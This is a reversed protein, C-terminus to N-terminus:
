ISSRFSNGAIRQGIRIFAEREERKMHKKEESPLNKYREWRAEDSEDAPLNDVKSTGLPKPITAQPKEPHFFSANDKKWAKLFTELDSDSDLVEEKEADRYAMEAVRPDIAGLKTVRESVKGSYTLFRIEADKDAVLKKYDVEAQKGAKLEQNESEVERLRRKANKAEVLTKQYTEYAVTDVEPAAPEKAEETNPASGPTDKNDM